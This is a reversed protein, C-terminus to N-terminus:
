FHPCYCMQLRFIRQFQYFVEKKCEFLHTFPSENFRYRVVFSQIHLVIAKCRENFGSAFFGLSFNVFMLTLKKIKLSGISDKIVDCAPFLVANIFCM